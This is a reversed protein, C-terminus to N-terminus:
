KIVRYIIVAPQQQAQDFFFAQEMILQSGQNANVYNVIEQGQNPFGHLVVYNSNAVLVSFDETDRPTIRREAYYILYPDLADALIISDKPTNSNIWLSAQQIPIFGAAGREIIPDGYIFQSYAFLGLIGILAIIAITKNYKRVYSYVFLLGNAILFAFIVLPVLLYRDEAAKLYFIFFAMLSSAILLIFVHSQLKRSKKFLDYGLILEGLVLILGLVFFALLYNQLIHPIFNTIVYYANAPKDATSASYVALAPFFNGLKIFNNVLYLILPIIGLLGGIWFGKKKLFNHKHILLLFIIYVGGIIASVNRMLIALSLFLISFSFLKTDLTKYSKLFFYISAISFVMAPIDTMIRASYFLNLWSVSIVFAAILGVRKNYLEKGILYVLWVAILSPIFELIFIVGVDSIGLRILGEWLLPLLPARFTTESTIFFTDSWFGFISEKALSGYALSDWWHAQNKTLFFYYLRIVLALILVGIFGINYKDELIKKIKEKKIQITIEENNEM